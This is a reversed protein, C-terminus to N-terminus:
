QSTVPATPQVQCGQRRRRGMWFWAAAIMATTLAAVLPKALPLFAAGFLGIWVVMMPSGCCGILFCASLALVGSFTLGGLAFTRTGCSRDTLYARIAVAAFSLSLAYAYGLWYSQSERYIRWWSGEVPLLAWDAQAPDHEPFFGLWVYHVVFVLAFV